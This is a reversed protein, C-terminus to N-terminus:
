GTLIDRLLIGTVTRVPKRPAPLVVTRDIMRKLRKLEQVVDQLRRM